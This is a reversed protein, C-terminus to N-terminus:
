PEEPDPTPRAAALREVAEDHALAQLRALGRWSLPANRLIYAANGPHLRARWATIAVTMVLRLAILDPLAALEDDGLAVVQRYAALVQGAGELPDGLEDLHYACAVAIECVRPAETIDGFDILGTIRAPQREDVLVNWPQVDNHIVQRPLHELRPMTRAEIRDLFGEALARGPLDEIHELLPRLQRGHQLDWLLRPDHVAPRYGALASDLRGVLRGLNHRLAATRRTRHLAVGPMFEFLRAVRPPEDGLAHLVEHEGDRAPCLAPVPLAPDAQALHRYAGSQLAVYARDESPHTLKLLWARGDDTDARFNQDREASLLTLRASLGWHRRLLGAAEGADVARAASAMTAPADM